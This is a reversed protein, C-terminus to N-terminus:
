PLIGRGWFFLAALDLFPGLFLFFPGLVSGSNVSFLGKASRINTVFFTDMAKFKALLMETNLQTTAEAQMLARLPEAQCNSLKDLVTTGAVGTSRQVISRHLSPASMGAKIQLAVLTQCVVPCRAM